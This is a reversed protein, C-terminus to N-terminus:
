LLLDVRTINTRWLARIALLGALAAVVHLVLEKPVFFRDLEFAHFTTVALVVAIAGIQLVRLALSGGRRPELDVITMLTSQGDPRSRFSAPFWITRMRTGGGFRNTSTRIVRFSRGASKMRANMAASALAPSRTRM